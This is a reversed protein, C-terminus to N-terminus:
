QCCCFSKCRAFIYQIIYSPPISAPYELSYPPRIRCINSTNHPDTQRGYTFVGITSGITFSESTLNDNLDYSRTIDLEGYKYEWARASGRYDSSGGFTQNNYYSFIMLGDNTKQFSTIIWGAPLTLVAPYFKGLTASSNVIGDYAHLYNRDAIYLLDDDGVILPHPYGVGDTTYPSALPTTVAVSSMFDDDFTANLNFMGVDWITTSSYSYFYRQGSVTTGLTKATYVVCDNLVPTTGATPTVTYPWGGGSSLTNTVPEYKHILAGNSIIYAYSVDFIGKRMFKVMVTTANTATVGRPGPVLVGWQRFPNIENMYSLKNGGRIISTSGNKWEPSLGNIFDDKDWVIKGGKENATIKAM